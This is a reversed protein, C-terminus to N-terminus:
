SETGTNKGYFFHIGRGLAGETVEEIAESFTPHAHITDAIDELTAGMEIAFTAEAIMVNANHSVIEMGKVVNNKDCAVKVFGNTKAFAIGIGLASLPCLTM